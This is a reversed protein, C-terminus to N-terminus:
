PKRRKRAIPWHAGYAAITVTKQFPTQRVGGSSYMLRTQDYIRAHFGPPMVLIRDFLSPIWFVGLIFGDFREGVFLPVAALLGNGGQVLAVVGSLVPQRQEYAFRLVNQRQFEKSLDLNQAEQNGVLPVLWRVHLSPDVWEIAQFGPLDDLYSAADAEWLPQPTGGSAQWRDAM